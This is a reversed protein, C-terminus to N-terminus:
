IGGKNNDLGGRGRTVERRRTKKEESNVSKSKGKREMGGAGVNNDQYITRTKVKTRRRCRISRDDGKDAHGMGGGVKGGVAGQSRPGVGTVEKRKLVRGCLFNSRWKGKKDKITKEEKAEL